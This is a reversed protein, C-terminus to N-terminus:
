DGGHNVGHMTEHYHALFGGHFECHEYFIEEGFKDKMVSTSQRGCFCVVMEVSPTSSPHIFTWVGTWRAHTHLWHKALEIEGFFVQDCTPCAVHHFLDIREPIPAM